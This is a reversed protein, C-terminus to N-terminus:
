LRQPANKIFDVPQFLTQSQVKQGPILTQPMHQPTRVIQQQVQLPQQLIVNPRAPVTQVQSPVIIQQNQRVSQNQSSGSYHSSNIYQGPMLNPPLSGRVNFNQNSVVQNVPTYNQSQSGTITHRMNNSQVPVQNQIMPVSINSQQRQM